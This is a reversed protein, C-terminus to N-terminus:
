KFEVPISVWVAVNKDRQKAAKWKVSKVAKVAAKACATNLSSVIKIKSIEGKEDILAHVNVTGKVGGELSKVDVRLTEVGGVIRPKESIAYFEYIEEGKKDGQSSQKKETSNTSSSTNNPKKFEPQQRNIVEEIPVVTPELALNLTTTKNVKVMVDEILVSKFGVYEVKFTYMGPPVNIMFFHGQDDTGVGIKTRLLFVNAGALPKGTSKDIVTGAIKGVNVDTKVTQVAPPLPNEQRSNGSTMSLALGSIFLIILTMVTTFKSIKLMADEQLLYSIRNLLEKKKHALSSAALLSVQRQVLNEALQVLNRGYGAASTKSQELVYRDCARERYRKLRADLLWVLPHFFYLAKALIQFIQIINDRRSIHALEHYLFQNRMEQPWNEWAAPVFIAKPRLLTTLPAALKSNKYVSVGHSIADSVTENIHESDKLIFWLCLSSFLYYILVICVLATWGLLVIANLSLAPEYSVAPSIVTIEDVPVPILSSPTSSWLSFPIPIFGPILLKVMGILAILYKTGADTGRLLFLLLFVLMLFLTNQLTLLGFYIFWHDGLTNLLAIM